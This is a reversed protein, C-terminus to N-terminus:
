DPSIPETSAELLTQLFGRILARETENYSELIEELVGVRNQPSKEGQGDRETEPRGRNLKNMRHWYRLQQPHIGSKEFRRQTARAGIPWKGDLRNWAERAGPSLSITEKKRGKVLVVQSPCPVPWSCSVAENIRLGTEALFIAMDRSEGVRRAIAGLRNAKRDGEDLRQLTAELDEVPKGPRNRHKPAVLDSSPDDGRVGSRVLFQYFSKLASIRNAVTGAAGGRAQLWRRLDPTSLTEPEGVEGQLIELTRGYLRITNPALGKEGIVYRQWDSMLENM